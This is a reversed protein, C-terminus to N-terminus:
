ERPGYFAGIAAGVAPRAADQLHGVDDRYDTCAGVEPSFGAVLDSADHVVEAIAQDVYPHNYSARVGNPGSAPCLAHDPGGIVPQLVIQRLHPRKARITAIAARIKEVWVAVNSEYAQLTITFLVRDPTDSGAACPTCLVPSGTGFCSEEVPASWVDAAPDAWVDVDGGARFLMQWRDPDIQQRFEATDYFQLSQSFGLIETCAFDGPPPPPPPPPPPDGEFATCEPDPTGQRCDLRGGVGADLSRYACDAADFHLCRSEATGASSVAYWVDVADVPAATVALGAGVDGLGKAALFLGEGADVVAKRVATPGGPARRNLFLARTVRNRRWGTRGDFAGAPVVYQATAEDVRVVVFAAVASRDGGIPLGSIPGVSEFLVHSRGRGALRDVVQLRNGGAQATAAAVLAVGLAL